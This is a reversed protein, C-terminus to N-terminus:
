PLQKVVNAVPHMTAVLYVRAFTLCPLFVLVAWVVPLYFNVSALNFAVGGTVFLLLLALIYSIFLYKFNRICFVLSKALPQSICAYSYSSFFGLVFLLLLFFAYVSSVSPLGSSVSTELGLSLLALLCIFVGFWLLTRLVFRKVFCRLNSSAVKNSPSINSSNINSNNIRVAVWWTIGQLVLWAVFLSVLMLGLLYVVAHYSVLVDSQQTIASQLQSVSGFSAQIKEANEQVSQMVVNLHPQIKLFFEVYIKTLAYFFVLDAIVSLLVLSWHKFFLLVSNSINSSISSFMSSHLLSVDVIDASNKRM